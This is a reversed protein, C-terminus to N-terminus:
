DSESHVHLLDRDLLVRIFAPSTHDTLRLLREQGPGYQKVDVFALNSMLDQDNQGFHLQCTVALCAHAMIIYTAKRANNNNCMWQM